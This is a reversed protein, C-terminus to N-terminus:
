RKDNIFSRIYDIGRIIVWGPAIESSRHGAYLNPDKEIIDQRVLKQHMEVFRIIRSKEDDDLAGWTNAAM